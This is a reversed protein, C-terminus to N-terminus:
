SHQKQRAGKRPQDAWSRCGPLHSIEQISADIETNPQIHVKELQASSKLDQETMVEYQDVETIVENANAKLSDDVCDPTLDQNKQLIDEVLFHEDTFVGPNLPHIRTNKFGGTAKVITNVPSYAKNFIEAVDYLIIKVLNRTKMFLDCERKYATKLPSYFVVDLPHLRHSIHPPLSVIVIRKERCIDYAEASCHTPHHDLILLM